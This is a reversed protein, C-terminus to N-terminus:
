VMPYMPYFPCHSSPRDSDCPHKLRMNAELYLLNLMPLIRAESETASQIIINSAEESLGREIFAGVLTSIVNYGDLKRLPSILDEPLSYGNLVSGHNVGQLYIVPHNLLTKTRNQSIKMIHYYSEASRLPRFIGDNEGNISMLPVLHMEERFEPLLCSGFTIVGAWPAPNSFVKKQVAYNSKLSHVLINLFFNGFIFHPVGYDRLSERHEELEQMSKVIKISLGISVKGIIARAFKSYEKIAVSDSAVITLGAELTRFHGFCLISQLFVIVSLRCIFLM